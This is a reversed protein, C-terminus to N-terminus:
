TLAPPVYVLWQMNCTAIVHVHLKFYIKRVYRNLDLKEAAGATLLLAVWV